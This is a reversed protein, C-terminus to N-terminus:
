TKEAPPVLMVGTRQEMLYSFRSIASGLPLEKQLENWLDEAEKSIPM